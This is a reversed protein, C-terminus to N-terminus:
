EGRRLSGAPDVPGDVSGHGRGGVSFWAFGILAKVPSNDMKIWTTKASSTEAQIFM